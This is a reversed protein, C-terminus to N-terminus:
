FRLRYGVTPLIGADYVFGDATNMIPNGRNTVNAVNCYLESGRFDISFHLNVSVFTPCRASNEQKRCSLFYESNYRDDESSSSLAPTPTYAYGSRVALDAGLTVKSGPCYDLQMFFRHPANLEYPVSLGHETRTARTYGYFSYLGIRPSLFETLNLTVDGGAFDAHGTSRMTIFGNEVTTTAAPEDTTTVRSFDPTVVPLDSIQKGFLSVKLGRHHYSLSAMRTMIPKLRDLDARVLLQYPESSKGVPNQAYSGVTLRLGSNAGTNLQVEQRYLLASVQALNGFREYRLGSQLALRGLGFAYSVFAASNTERASERYNGFIQNLEPQYIFPNDSAADAPLLNWNTQTMTLERSPIWELRGGLTIQSRGLDIEAKLSTLWTKTQENLNISFDAPLGTAAKRDETNDSPHAWLVGTTARVAGKFEVLLPDMLGQYRVGWFREESHQFLTITSGSKATSLSEFSLYDRVRYADIYVQHQPSIRFGSALFLDQFNTPPLTRRNWQLEFQKALKDLVSKRVSAVVFARRGGVTMAGTAELPSVNLEGHHHPRFVTETTLKIVSPLGHSAPTGQPYFCLKDVVSGPIISFMGYHHPDKGINHGNLFYDPNTGNVRIKSSHSSGERVAQPQIVAGVPNSALLSQQSRRTLEEGRVALETGTEVAPSVTIGSMKIPQPTLHIEILSDLLLRSVATEQRDYGLSSVRLVWTDSPRAPLDIEFAGDANTAVGVVTSDGDIIVVTARELPQGALDTVRGVLALDLDASNVVGYSLLLLLLFLSAKAKLTARVARRSEPRTLITSLEAIM